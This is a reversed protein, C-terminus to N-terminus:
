PRSNLSTHALVSYTLKWFPAGTERHPHPRRQESTGFPYRPVHLPRAADHNVLFEGISNLVPITRKAGQYPKPLPPNCNAPCFATHLMLRPELSQFHAMDSPRRAQIGASQNADALHSSALPCSAVAKETGLPARGSGRPCDRCPEFRTGSCVTTVVTLRPHADREFCLGLQAHDERLSAARDLGQPYWSWPTVQAGVMADRAGGARGRTASRKTPLAAVMGVAGWIAWSREAIPGASPGSFNSQPEASDSSSRWLSAHPTPGVM